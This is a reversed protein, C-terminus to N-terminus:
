NIKGIKSSTQWPKKVKAFEFLERTDNFDDDEIVNYFVNIDFTRSFEGNNGDDDDCKKLAV